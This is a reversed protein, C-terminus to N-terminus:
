AAKRRRAALTALGLGLLALTAPEPVGSLGGLPAGQFWYAYDILDYDDFDVNGDMDLDGTWWGMQEPPLPFWYYYDIIDYDDFTVAGDFNVDGWYTYKVLVSTIDVIEGAFETFRAEYGGAGGNADPNWKMNDLVGVATLLDPSSDGDSDATAATTSRIGPGDWYGADKNYGAKVWDAVQALPSLSVDSYDVILNNNWVDLTGTPTGTPNAGAISLWNVVVTKPRGEVTPMGLVINVLGGDAIEIGELHQTVEFNVTATPGQALVALPRPGAPGADTWFNVTGDTVDFHTSGAYQQPGAITLAAPGTKTITTFGEAVETRFTGMVLVDASVTNIAGSSGTFAISEEIGLLFGDSGTVTLTRGDGIEVRGVSLLRPIVVTTAPQVGAPAAVVIPAPGVDIHGDGETVLANNSFLTDFDARLNVTGAGFTLDGPLAGAQRLELVGEDVYVVNYSPPMTMRTYGPNWGSVVLTGAGTKRLDGEGSIQFLGPLTLTEDADVQFEGGGYQIEFWRGSGVTFSNTAHLRGFNMFIQKFPAGLNADRSVQLTTIAPGYVSMPRPGPTPGQMQDSGIQIGEGEFLNDATLVLTGGGQIMMTDVDGRLVGGLTLVTDPGVNFSALAEMDVPRNSTFSTTARVEAGTLYLTGGPQGLRSDGDLVLAVGSVYTDGSYTNAGTLAVSSMWGWQPSDGGSLVLSLAGGPDTNDTIDAAVNHAGYIVHLFLEPRPQLGGATLTGNLISAPAGEFGNGLMIGGSEVNLTHGDLDLAYTGDTKLSNISRDATLTASAALIVNDAAGAANIDAVGITLPVVGGAMPEPMAYTAFSSDVVAWGGIIGDDLLPGFPPNLFIRAQGGLGYGSFTATAGTSRSLDTFTMLAWSSESFGPMVGIFSSGRSLALLPIEEFSVEDTMGDFIMYGGRMTVPGAIRDPLSGFQNSLNLYGNHQITYSVSPGTAGQDRLAVGGSKVLVPGTFTNAALFRVNADSGITMGVGPAGSIPGGFNVGGGYASDDVVSLPVNLAVPANITHTGADTALSAMGHPSDFVLSGNTGADITYTYMVGRFGLGGLTIQQDLTITANDSSLYTGLWANDGIGNPYADGPLWKTTDTWAGGGDYGWMADTAAAPPPSAAFMGAALLAAVVVLKGIRM